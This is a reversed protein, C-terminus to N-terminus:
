GGARAKPPLRCATRCATSSRAIASIGPSAPLWLYPRVFIRDYLEDFYWKNLLFFYLRSNSRSTAPLVPSSICSWALAIGLFASSSRPWSPGAPLMSWSAVIPQGASQSAPTGSHPLGASSGATLLYGAVIAGIALIVLPVIMVSPSEHVHELMHHDARSTGHFTVFLLRWSYFATLFAALVTCIFGYMASKPTPRIRRRSSRM